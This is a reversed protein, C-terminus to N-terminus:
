GRCHCRYSPCRADGSGCHERAAAAAAQQEALRQDAEVKQQRARRIATQISRRLRDRHDADVDLARELAELSLKLDQEARAPDNMIARPAAALSTEIEARLKGAIVLREEQLTGLLGAPQEAVVTVELVGFLCLAAIPSHLFLSRLSM